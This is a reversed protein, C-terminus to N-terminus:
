DRSFDVSPQSVVHHIIIAARRGAPGLESEITSDVRLRVYIAVNAIIESVKAEVEVQDLKSMATVGLRAKWSLLPLSTLTDEM